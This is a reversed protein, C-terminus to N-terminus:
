VRATRGQGRNNRWHSYNQRPSNSTASVSPTPSSTKRSDSRNFGDRSKPGKRPKYNSAQRPKVPPTQSKSPRQINTLIYEAYEGTMIKSYANLGPLHTFIRVGPGNSNPFVDFVFPEVSLIQVPKVNRSKARPPTVPQWANRPAMKALRVTPTSGVTRDEFLAEEDEYDKSTTKAAELHIVQPLSVAAPAESFSAELPVKTSSSVAIVNPKEPIAPKRGLLGNFRDQWSATSAIPRSDIRLPQPNAVMAAFTPPAVPPPLPSTVAPPLKVVPKPLPLCVVPRQMNGDYAPHGESDPPPPESTSIDEPQSNVARRTQSHSDGVQPFFRSGRTVSPGPLQRGIHDMPPREGIVGFDRPSQNFPQPANLTREVNIVQRGGDDNAQTQRWTEKFTPQAPDPRIGSKADDKIRTQREEIVKARGEADEKAAVVHFNNWASTVSNNTPPARPPRYDRGFGAPPRVPAARRYSQQIPEPVTKESSSQEEVPIPKDSPLTGPPIQNDGTNSKPVSDVSQFQAPISARTSENQTGSYGQDSGSTHPPQRLAQSPFPPISTDFTGNGLTKDNSPPGWVNTSLPPVMGRTAAWPSPTEPNPQELKEALPQDEPKHMQERPSLPPKGRQRLPDHVRNGNIVPPNAELLPEVPSKRPSMDNRPPIPQHNGKERPVQRRITQPSHLTMMGYRVPEDAATPVPPKPPSLAKTSKQPSLMPEKPTTATAPSVENSKAKKEELPPLGLAEMKLRIRERKEAEEREEQERRRKIALERKELMLKHQIARQMDLDEGEPKNEPAITTEGGPINQQPGESGPGKYVAPHAHNLNPSPGSQYNQNQRGPSFSRQPYSQLNTSNPINRPSEVRDSPGSQQSSRRQHIDNPFPPIDPVKGISMRRALSGSGGSVNSSTRRRGWMSGDVSTRSTQFAASPEAPGQQDNLSPRQLVSPARFQQDNRSSRRNGNVPEYRGNHSNFLERQTGGSSDRWSRNFDDAAIEKAAPPIPPMSQFGHPDRQGFRGPGQASPNIPIPSVKDVPPLPAWPSKSPVPAEVSSSSGTKDLQGKVGYGNSKNQHAASAGIKLVTANPGISSIPKISPSKSKERQDDSQRILRTQTKEPEPPKETHSLTIKTGDAWEITEPAWEDEDDDIDAWKAEKSEDNADLRTAMSIGYQKKLEEDTLHKPAAPQVPRNRNWVQLPDPGKDGGSRGRVGSAKSISDRLGTTSKNVLRTKSGHHVNTLLNTSTVAPAKDGNVKSASSAAATKALFSKTVSVSKFSTPKRVSNTRSHRSSGNADQSTARSTDTDSGGSIELHHLHSDDSLHDLKTSNLDPSASPTESIEISTQGQKLQLILAFEHVSISFSVAAQNGRSRGRQDLDDAQHETATIHDGLDDLAKSSKSIHATIKNDEANEDGKVASTTSTTATVDSPSHDGVSQAQNVVDHVSQEAMVLNPDTKSFSSNREDSKQDGDDSPSDHLAM